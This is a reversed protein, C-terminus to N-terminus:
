KNQRKFQKLVSNLVDESTLSNILDEETLEINNKLASAETVAELVYNVCSCFSLQTETPNLWPINYHSGQVNPHVNRRHSKIEGEHSIFPWLLLKVLSEKVRSERDCPLDVWANVSVSTKCDVTKVFHWRYM